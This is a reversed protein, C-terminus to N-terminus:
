FSQPFTKCPGRDVDVLLAREGRWTDWDPLPGIRFLDSGENVDVGEPYLPRDRISSHVDNKYYIGGIQSFRSSSFKSEMDLVEKITNITMPGSMDEWLTQLEVGVSKDMIIYESGVEDSNASWALVRPVPLHLITRAFDM